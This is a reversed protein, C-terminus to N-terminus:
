YIKMYMYIVNMMIDNTSVNERSSEKRVFSEVAEVSCIPNSSVPFLLVFLVQMNKM